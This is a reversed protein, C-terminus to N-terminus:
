GGRKRRRGTATACIASSWSAPRRARCKPKSTSARRANSRRCISAASRRDTREGAGADAKSMDHPQVVAKVEEGMEENPVGFVAVDAVAPHTILVDETEQPYINVGGSIIMYSKRDTLYLFGEDDLYGVDGLTSWGKDNYANKTKDPDNHYSFVRRTPSISRASRRRGPSTTTRTSFRSRASWPEASPAAIARAMSAFDLRHRRQRRLRRLVRDPDTGVMRDDEGERRGPVARRCPDRGEAVLRRISARVEDPLKLMRVFMTPVLQSQTVKHKEVLKLFHEADFNEMIISTGGLATAM